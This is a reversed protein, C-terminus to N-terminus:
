MRARGDRARTELRASKTAARRVRHKGTATRDLRHSRQTVRAIPAIPTTM